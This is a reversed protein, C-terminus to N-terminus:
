TFYAMMAHEPKTPIPFPNPKHQIYHERGGSATHTASVLGQTGPQDNGFFVHFYSIKRKHFGPGSRSSCSDKQPAGAYKMVM